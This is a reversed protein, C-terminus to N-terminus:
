WYKAWNNRGDLLVTRARERNSLPKGSLWGHLAMALGVISGLPGNGGTTEPPETAPAALTEEGEPGEITPIAM